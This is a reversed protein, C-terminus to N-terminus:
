PLVAIAEIEVAAGLPLAAVQFTSRAPKVEGNFHRSYIENLQSFQTIDALFVTTKVINELSGGAAETLARLGAIVGEVQKEFDDYPKKTEPDLGLQGSIFLLNGTRVAPSYPSNAVPSSGSFVAEKDITKDAM